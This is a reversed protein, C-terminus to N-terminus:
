SIFFSFYVNGAEISSSYSTGAPDSATLSTAFHRSYQRAASQRDSRAVGDPRHAVAVTVQRPGGQLPVAESSGERIEDARTAKTRLRRSRSWHLPTDCTATGSSCWISSCRPEGGSTFSAFIAGLVIPWIEIKNNNESEALLVGVLVLHPPWAPEAALIPCRAQAVLERSHRVRARAWGRRGARRVDCTRHGRRESIRSACLEQFATGLAARAGKVVSRRMDPWRPWSFRPRSCGGDGSAPSDPSDEGVRYDGAAPVRHRRRGSWRSRAGVASSLRDDCREPPGTCYTVSRLAIRRHDLLPRCIVGVALWKARGPERAPAPQPCPTQPCVVTQIFHHSSSTTKGTTLTRRGPLYASRGFKTETLQLQRNFGTQEMWKKTADLGYAFTPDGYDYYNRWPINLLPKPANCRAEPAAVARALPSSPNRDTVRDDRRAVSNIWKTATDSGFAGDLATFTPVVVGRQPRRPGVRCAWKAGTAVGRDHGRGVVQPDTPGRLMRSPM